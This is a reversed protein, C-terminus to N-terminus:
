GEKTTILSTDLLPHHDFLSMSVMNKNHGMIIKKRTPLPLFSLVINREEKFNMM